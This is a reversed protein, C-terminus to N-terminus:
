AGSVRRRLNPVPLVRSADIRACPAGRAHLALEDAFASFTTRVFRAVGDPHRCAGRGEVLNCIELIPDPRLGRQPRYALRELAHALESLGHVCPGCQGAGQGEMYRVVDAAEALPCVDAPLVAVIGPGLTAGARRAAKESLPLDAFVGPTVWGGGYGGLLIGRAARVEDPRLGAAQRLPSGLAAEVVTQGSPRNVTLLMTGPADATGQERFWAAGFRAILAVHALTEVNHVLTPHGRVGRQRVSEIGVFSPLAAGRRGNLATVVASEQGAIFTDPARVVHIPVPDGRREAVAQDVVGISSAPVYAIAERARLARAALVLGDLVLHPAQLLLTADKRSAPEGEAGNAVVVPRGRGSAVSRWKDAVPFWAGGHGALGSADLEEMLRHARVPGWRDLHAALGPDNRGRDNGPDDAIGHLLRAGAGGDISVTVSASVSPSAAPRSVPSRIEAPRSGASM